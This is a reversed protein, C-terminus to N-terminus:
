IKEEMFTEGNELNKWILKDGCLLIYSNPTGDKPLSISGCNAYKVGGLDTLEPTHFHGNFLVDGAKLPPLVEKNFLHGHTLFLNRAGWPLLAYDAMMPFDLVMQDVESDCNGRVCVLNEKVANLMAFVKKPAYDKPFDNRPGHYLLDGLLVLKEAGEKQFASLLKECWYASGHVDSAIVIKQM